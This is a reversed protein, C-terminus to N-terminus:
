SGGLPCAILGDNDKINFLSPPDRSSQLLYGVVEMNGEGWAYHLATRGKVDQAYLTSRPDFIWTPSSSFKTLLLKLIKTNARPGCAHHLPLRGMNDRCELLKARIRGDSIGHLIRAVADYNSQRCMEHLRTLGKGSQQLINQTDDPQSQIQQYKKLLGPRNEEILRLWRRTRFKVLIMEAALIERIHERLPASLRSDNELETFIGAPNPWGLKLLRRLQTKKGQLAARRVPSHKAETSDNEPARGLEKISPLMDTMINHSRFIECLDMKLEWSFPRDRPNKDLMETVLDLVQTVLGPHGNRMTKIWDRVVFMNNHFSYDEEPGEFFDKIPVRVNSNKRRAEKFDLVKGVWGFVELVMLELVLCGLSWIDYSRGHKTSARSGNEDWYEPPKYAYTGRVQTETKMISVLEGSGLDCIKLGDEFLLTNKPKLDHHSTTFGNIPCHLSAVASVLQFVNRYIFASKKKPDQLKWRQEAESKEMFYELDMVALPFVLNLEEVEFSERKRSTYSALLPVIYQDQRARLTDPEQRIIDWATHTARMEKVAVLSDKPRDPLHGGALTAKYVNGYSGGDLHKRGKLPPVFQAPFEHHKSPDLKPPVNWQNEMLDQHLKADKSARLDQFNSETIPFIDDDTRESFYHADASRGLLLLVVFLRPLRTALREALTPDDQLKKALAPDDQLKLVESVRPITILEEVRAISVFNHARIEAKLTDTLIETASLKSTEPCEDLPESETEAKTQRQLSFVGGDELIKFTSFYLGIKELIRSPSLFAGIRELIKFSSM